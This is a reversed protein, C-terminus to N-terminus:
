VTATSAPNPAVEITLDIATLSLLRRIDSSPNLLSLGREGRRIARRHANLIAKLGSADVFKLLTLDLAVVPGDDREATEISEELIPTTALDLEGELELRM